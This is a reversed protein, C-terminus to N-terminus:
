SEIDPSNGMWQQMKRAELSVRLCSMSLSGYTASGEELSRGAQNKGQQAVISVELAHDAIRARGVVDMADHSGGCAGAQEVGHLLNGGGLDTPATKGM